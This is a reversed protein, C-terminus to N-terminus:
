HETRLPELSVSWCGELGDLYGMSSRIEAGEGMSNGLDRRGSEQRALVLDHKLCLEFTAEAIVGEVQNGARASKVVCKKVMQM